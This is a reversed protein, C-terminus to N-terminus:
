RALDDAVDLAPPGVAVRLVEGTSRRAVLIHLGPRAYQLVIDALGPPWGRLCTETALRTAIDAAHRADPELALALKEDGHDADDTLALAADPEWAGLDALVQLKRTRLCAIWIRAGDAVFIHDGEPDYTLSRPRRMTAGDTLRAFRVVEETGTAGDIHHLAERYSGSIYIDNGCDVAVSPQSSFFGTVSSEPACSATTTAGGPPGRRRNGITAVAGGLTLRCVRSTYDALVVMCGLADFAVGTIGTFLASAGQGEAAGYTGECGALLKVDGTESVTYVATDTWCVLARDPTRHPEPVCAANKLKRLHCFVRSTPSSRQDACALRHINDRFDTVYTIGRVPDHTIGNPSTCCIPEDLRTVAGRGAFSPPRAVAAAMRKAGDDDDDDSARLNARKPSAGDQDLKRKTACGSDGGSM